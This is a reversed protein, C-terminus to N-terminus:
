PPALKKIAVPIMSDLEECEGRRVADELGSVFNLMLDISRFLGFRNLYADIVKKSDKLIIETEIVSYGGEPSGFDYGDVAAEPTNLAFRVEILIPNREQIRPSNFYRMVHDLETAAYVYDTMGNYEIETYNRMEDHLNHLDLNDVGWNHPRVDGGLGIYEMGHKMSIASINQWNEKVLYWRGM